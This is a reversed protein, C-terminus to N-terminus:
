FAWTLALYALERTPLQTLVARAPGGYRRWGGDVRVRDGQWGLSATCVRGADAPTYLWDLAPQWPGRAWSLRAFLNARRLNSAASFAQAQWALNGALATAPAPTGRLAALGANRANWGDWQADSPAMGDWWAELLVGLQDANTWTGGLQAQVAHGTRTASWPSTSQLGTAVPDAAWTDAAALWRASAHLELEEGAVWAAAAGVSGHTHAGWRAFGHWDVAGDRRYLRLAAAPEQAGPQARAHTPNVLVLSWATDADFHEAMLLPRGEPTTALLTRRTEQQVVDNPRWAYGVDWGVVKKGASFQLSEGGAAAYLENVWGQARWAGGQARERQLTGVATLGAGSARVEAQLALSAVPPEVLGPALQAALALPGHAAAGLETAIPRLQGGFEPAAMGAAVGCPGCLVLALARLANM